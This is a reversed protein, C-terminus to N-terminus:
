RTPTSRKIKGDDELLKVRELTHEFNLGFLMCLETLTKQGDMSYILYDWSLNLQKGPTQIGYKSRHLPGTFDRTPIFDSEYYEITKLIVKQVYEIMTYSIREPTDLSTHYEPYGHTSFMIGPIGIKPDNFVYEDSGITSRFIGQRYGHGTGKIALHAANNIRADKNFAKQFLMGEHHENGICDLAIVFDVNSLDHTHAYAISGITEPCFVLKITHEYQQPKIHKVLDVLCAVASLNDNAQFPHDLHAFLLVEKDTKGPITHTAVKMVSPRYETDICVEYEGEKLKLERDMKAGDESMKYAYIKNKPLTVGWDKDYFKYEYPYADPQEDSYHLHALLEERNVTGHFPLSGVVLSMPQKKYDIIKKGNYKVWADRVVWENPVTWTEIETGSPYEDIELDILQQLYKLASDYGEGLLGRNMPFLDEIIQKMTIRNYLGM